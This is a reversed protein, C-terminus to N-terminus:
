IRMIEIKRNGQGKENGGFLAPDNAYFLKANLSKTGMM